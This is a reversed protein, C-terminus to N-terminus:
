RPEIVTQTTRPQDHRLPYVTKFYAVLLGILWLALIIGLVLTLKRHPRLPPLFTPDPAASPREKAAARSAPNYQKNM